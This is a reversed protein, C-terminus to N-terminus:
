TGYNVSHEPKEHRSWQSYGVQFTCLMDNSAYKDDDVGDMRCECKDRM